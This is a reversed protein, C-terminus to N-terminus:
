KKRQGVLFRLRLRERVPEDYLKLCAYAIGVALLLVSVAVFVHTGAPLDQHSRAWATQLYILPYHTIYLPYSIAGLFRCLAVSKKGTVSSGAGALVVVPFLLLMCVLEYMGNFIPSEVGGLRPFGLWAVVMLSCVYFGGRIRLSWQMRSLLLGCLFPFLLRTAGIYLQEPSLSWGGVLTHNMEGRDPLLGFLNLNLTLDATLVASLLVCLALLTKSFRRIFLAYLINAIYEWMLTWAPGNLSYTEGWGRVDLRLPSPLMLLGLVVALLVADWPTQGIIPFVDGAGFYYFAAGILTGAIVMPHLRVIRRKFFAWTSMSGWRDDYAYGVVFGSLMFFFDVALYGHNPFVVGASSSAYTEGLHYIVVILAAVGRLGDLIEYHQKSQLYAPVM